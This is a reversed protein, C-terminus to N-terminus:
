HGDVEHAPCPPFTLAALLGLPGLWSLKWKCAGVSEFSLYPVPKGERRQVAIDAM